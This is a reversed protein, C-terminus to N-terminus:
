IYLPIVVGLFVLLSLLVNARFFDSNLTDLSNSKRFFHIWVLLLSALAAIGWWAPGFEWLWAGLWLLFLTLGHCLAAIRQAGENGFRAPISHLGLKSDVEQDQTAYIIDFGTIWTLLLVGLWLAEGALVGQVAVWAGLPSLGIALGLFVHCLASFRKFLSYACLVLLTPISLWGALSNLTWAAGVFIGANLLMFLMVGQSSIEGTVLHRRATRPNLADIDRDVWRNFAMATNRATVMCVLVGLLVEWKPRGQSAWLLAALAFPLAFLTHSFRVMDLYKRIM